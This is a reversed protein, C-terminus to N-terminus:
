LKIRRHGGRGPHFSALYIRLEEEGTLWVQGKKLAILRGQRAAEKLVEPTPISELNLEKKNLEAWGAAEELSYIGNLKDALHSRDLYIQTDKVRAKLIQEVRQRSIGFQDGIEELTKNQHFYLTVMKENRERTVSRTAKRHRTIINRKLGAKKAWTRLTTYKVKLKSSIDELSMTSETYLRLAEEKIMPSYKDPRVM